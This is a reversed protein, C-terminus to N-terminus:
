SYSFFHQGLLTNFQQLENTLDDLFQMLREENLLNLDIYNVKSYTRGFCRRLNAAEKDEKDTVRDLFNSVHSLAYIISRSFCENLVLQHMVNYAHNANKYTKLHIEYGSLSFLLYRWFLIDNTELENQHLLQLQKQLFSITQLSRELYKGLNMFDWGTGRPMTIHMLGTYTVCHKTFWDMVEMADNANLRSLLIPQNILHFMQNIEGWTEKSIHDQVGRANERARSVIVKLSNHNSTDILLKKLAGETDNALTEIENPSTTAFVELVPKWSRYGTIDKDLSYIYHTSTLRLLGDAREMYRSLWFLSDAIRSLM